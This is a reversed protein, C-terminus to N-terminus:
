VSLPYVLLAVLPRTLLILVTPLAVPSLPPPPLWLPVLLTVLRPNIVDWPKMMKTLEINLTNVFHVDTLILVLLVDLLAPLAGITPGSRVLVVLPLPPPPIKPWPLL